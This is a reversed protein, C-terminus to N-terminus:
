PQPPLGKHQGCFLNTQPGPRAMRLAEKKHELLDDINLYRHAELWNERM